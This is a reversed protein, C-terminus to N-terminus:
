EALVLKRTQTTGAAELRAFYVGTALRRGANDRGDWDVAHGAAALESDVLTRVLRGAADFLELRVHAARPLEFDITAGPRFPNPRAGRLLPRPVGGVSAQASTVTIGGLEFRQTAGSREVSVLRYRYTAGPVVARDIWQYESGDRGTADIRAASIRTWDGAVGGDGGGDGGADGGADARWVQFGLVDREFGTRWAIAVRGEASTMEHWAISVPNVRDLVALEALCATAGRAFDTMYYLDLNDVRDSTSHYNPYWDPATQLQADIGFVAPYGYQAFWFHDSGYIPVESPVEVDVCLTYDNV